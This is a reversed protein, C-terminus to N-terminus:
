LGGEGRGHRALVESSLRQLSSVRLIIRVTVICVYLIKLDDFQRFLLSRFNDSNYRSLTSFAVLFVTRQVLYKLPLSASEGWSSLHALVPGIDFTTQYRPLPPRQRFVSKLAQSFLRFKVSRDM